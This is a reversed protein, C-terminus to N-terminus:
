RRELKSNLKNASYNFIEGAIDMMEKSCDAQNFIQRESLTTWTQPLDKMKHVMGGDIDPAAHLIMGVGSTILRVLCMPCSELSTYLTYNELNTINQNEDEFQSMTVMEAHLDSRFYPNFVKNHGGTVVNGNKDVLVCGVGFNGIEAAQLALIITLWIYVDDRLNVRPQYSKLALQLSALDGKVTTNNLLELGREYLCRQEM